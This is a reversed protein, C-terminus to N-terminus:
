WFIAADILNYFNFKVQIRNEPVYWIMNWCEVWM